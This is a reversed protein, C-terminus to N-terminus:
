HTLAPVPARRTGSLATGRSCVVFTTGNQEARRREQFNRRQPDEGAAHTLQSAGLCEATLHMAASNSIPELLSPPLPSCVPPHSIEKYHPVAVTHEACVSSLAIYFFGAQNRKHLWAVVTILLVHFRGHVPQHRNKHSYSDFQLWLSFYLRNVTPESAKAEKVANVHWKGRKGTIKCCPRTIKWLGQCIGACHLPHLYKFLLMVTKIGVSFPIRSYSM